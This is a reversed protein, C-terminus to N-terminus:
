VIKTTIIITYIIAFICIVEGMKKFRNQIKVCASPLNPHPIFSFGKEIKKLLTNMEVDLKSLV